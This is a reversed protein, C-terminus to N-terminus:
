ATTIKIGKFERKSIKKDSSTKQGEIYAKYLPSNAFNRGAGDATIIKQLQEKEEKDDKIQKIIQQM